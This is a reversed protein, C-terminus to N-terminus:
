MTDQCKKCKFIVGTSGYPIEICDHKCSNSGNDINLKEVLEKQLWVTYDYTYIAEQDAVPRGTEKRFRKRLELLIKNNDM